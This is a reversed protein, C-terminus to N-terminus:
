FRVGVTMLVAHSVFGYTGDATQPIFFGTSSPPTSGSVTHNPGYGFQYAVDFEYKVGKKGAGITLFHRDVDAIVPSYYADPVSSQNYVYGASVHWGDALYRTVGASFIWSPRWFLNFPYDEQLPASPATIHHITVRRLVSWDTYDADLELNWNSSPKWAIGGAVTMPFVFRAEADRKALPIVPARQIETEGSLKFYTPSRYTIGVSVTQHPQWLLGANYGVNWGDGTFRFLNPLPQPAARLGQRLQLKAYDVMAGAAVSLGPLIKIALVPNFRLYTVEGKNGVAYFGTDDPWELGLGYPAYSGFGVTLPTDVIEHTFFLQPAAATTQKVHYTNGSNPATDPPQFTPDFYIGYIGSRIQDGELQSIGAPNYYVASANDATAVFAEGRATAFGDQSVLRMGNALVDRGAHCLVFALAFIFIRKQERFM